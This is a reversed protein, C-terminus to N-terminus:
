MPLNTSLLPVLPNRSVRLGKPTRSRGVPNSGAVDLKPLQCEAVSNRGREPTIISRNNLSPDQFDGACERNERRAGLAALTTPDVGQAIVVKGQPRSLRPCIGGPRAVAARPAM